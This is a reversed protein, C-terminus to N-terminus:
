KGCVFQCRLPGHDNRSLPVTQKLHWIEFVFEPCLGLGWVSSHSQRGEESGVGCDVIFGMAEGKHVLWDTVKNFRFDWLRNYTVICHYGVNGCYFDHQFLIIIDAYVFSFLATRFKHIYIQIAWSTTLWLKIVFKGHLSTSFVPRCEHFDRPAYLSVAHVPPARHTQTLTHRAHTWYLTVFLSSSDLVSQTMTQFLSLSPRFSKRPSTLM